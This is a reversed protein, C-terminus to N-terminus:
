REKKDSKELYSLLKGKGTSKVGLDKRMYNMIDELLQLNEESKRDFNKNITNKRFENWKKVVEPSGWLSIKGGFKNIDNILDKNTYEKKDSQIVKYMLEIFEYYPEERKSSLYEIKKINKETYKTYVVTFLSICGTILAVLVIKEISSALNKLYTLFYFLYKVIYIADIVLLVILFSQMLIGTNKRSGNISAILFTLILYFIFMKWDFSIILKGM